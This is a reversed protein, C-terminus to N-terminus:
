LREEQKARKPAFTLSITRVPAANRSGFGSSDIMTYGEDELVDRLRKRLRIMNNTISM